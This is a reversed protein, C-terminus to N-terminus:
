DITIHVSFKKLAAELQEPNEFVIGNMGLNVATQVNDLNDDIFICECAKLQHKQLLINYIQPEPKICKVEGSVVIDCFCSFFDYKAKVIPFTETSWNTLGFLAYGQKHLNKLIAVSQEITGIIMDEWKEKWYFLPERYHPLRASIETLIKTFDGGRDMERNALFIETEAYFRQLANEDNNFYTQYVTNPEWAVLVRGIDFIINKM